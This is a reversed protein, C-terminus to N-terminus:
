ARCDRFCFRDQVPFQEIERERFDQFIIKQASSVVKNNGARVSFRRCCRQQGPDHVARLVFRAVHDAANGRLKPCPALNLSDLNKTM